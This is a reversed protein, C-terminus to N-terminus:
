STGRAEEEAIQHNLDLLRSLLERRAEPSITYRTKGRENLYFDHNLQIDTWGYCALVANDMDAHLFRLKQIDADLCTQNHFLNDIKTMGLQRSLMIQDRLEHYELGINRTKEVNNNDIIPFPFTDFCKTTTYLLDTRLTSAYKRIWVEHINSQLISFFLFDDFLFTVTEESYISDPDIQRILHHDSIRSRAFAFRLHPLIRYMEEARYEYNWWNSKLRNYGSIENSLADRQPKVRERVIEILSSYEIVQDYTWDFFNIIYREPLLTISSNLNEGNFFPYLCNRNEPNNQILSLFEEKNIVFGCGRPNIGRYAHSVYQFIKKPEKESEEDLRSSIYDVIKDDLILPLLYKGKKIVILNVEVTAEGPWEIFRKAYTLNHGTNILHSLSAIRTEGQTITKTTIFGLFGNFSLLVGSRQFFGASYDVKGSFGIYSSILFFSYKMGFIGSINQGGIFPPNGLICDFGGNKFVEPFELSWHFFRYKTALETIERRTEVPVFQSDSDEKLSRVTENTPPITGAERIDWFFASCWADAAIMQSTFTDSERLSHYRSEKEKVESVVREDLNVLKEFEAACVTKMEAFSSLSIENRTESERKNKDKLNKLHRKYGPSANTIGQWKTSFIEDPINYELESDFFDLPVGVLSDGCKIHHDLFNLPLDKVAADIWLSVKALEVAMPNKDVGYICHQLVDRRCMQITEFSPEVEGTRIIALEKGLYNMAAITFAGSGCAPDCAKLNLLAQEKDEATKLREELVPRLAHQILEDVLNPPTYHSGTERRTDGRPDLFFTGPSIKVGDIDEEHSAVRPKYELLGEYISGIEEVGLDLYNIRKTVRDEEVMTMSAITQLLIDNRIWSQNILPTFRDDFLSGNYPFVDLEPCGERVMRFTIKLGDWLDTFADDYDSREEALERLRSISYEEMYLSNRTPLMARQEAYLLFLLRYIVRHIEAYYEQCVKESGVIESRIPDQLFGDGLLEIARKVNKELDDRVRVGAAVSEEFFKELPIKDDEQVIFRSAHAIRYLAIFDRYSRERFINELDFEVYGRTTTHFFFRIIRLVHGNTVIGWFHDKNLNLFLQMEDHPNRGSRSGKWRTELDQSPPVAIIYPASSNEWGQHTLRFCLREDGVIVDGKQFVPSFGLAELVPIIWRKRSESVDFDSYFNSIADWRIILDQFLSYLREDFEKQNSPAEEWPTAFTRPRILANQVTDQRMTELFELTIIGGKSSINPLEFLRM